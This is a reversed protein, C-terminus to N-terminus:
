TECAARALRSLFKLEPHTKLIVHIELQQEILRHRLASPIEPQVPLTLGRFLMRVPTVSRGKSAHGGELASMGSQQQLCVNGCSSM